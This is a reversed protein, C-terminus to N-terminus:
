DFSYAMSPIVTIRNGSEDLRAFHDTGLVYYGGTNENFSLVGPGTSIMNGNLDIISYIAQTYAERIFNGQMINTNLIFSIVKNDQVAPTISAVETPLILNRGDPSMVGYSTSAFDESFETYIIWGDVFEDLYRNQPILYANDYDFLWMGDDTM